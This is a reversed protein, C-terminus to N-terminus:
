HGAPETQPVTLTRRPSARSRSTARFLRAPLFRLAGPRLDGRAPAPVAHGKRLSDRTSGDTPTAARSISTCSRIPPRCGPWRPRLLGRELVAEMDARARGYVAEMIRSRPLHHVGENLWFDSWTANTVLNGSWSHALEHAILTVLSKDGALITPTVFTLRPNEMGGFPFSPPLVLVDYRGWRYPGYLKPRKSCRNSTPSNAGGGQGGGRSPM